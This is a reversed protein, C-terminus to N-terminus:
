GGTGSASVSASVMVSITMSANIRTSADVVADVAAVLCASAQIGVSALSTSAARISTVFSTAAPAIAFQVREQVRLLKPYNVKLTNVLAQIKADKAADSVHVGVITVAPPDCTAKANARADCAAKCEANAMVNADGNCEAMWSADCMGYCEGSCSGTVTSTCTGMCTGSCTADCSGNCTGTCTGVCNGQADMQTCTGSCSGYCKGTCTGQCTGSCSAACNVTGMVSCKGTCTASCSGHLEGMCSVMANGTISADCEAACSAAVNLDVTCQAPTVSIALAVGAPLTKIIADIETKVRTCAKTVALEGQAPTLESSPIGLDAAMATCAALTDMETAAAAQYLDASAHLLAEVKQASDSVGFDAVTGTDPDFGTGCAGGVGDDGGGSCSALVLLSAVALGHLARM